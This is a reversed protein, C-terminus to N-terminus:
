TLCLEALMLHAELHMEPFEGLTIPVHSLSSIGDLYDQLSSHLLQYHGDKLIILDASEAALGDNDSLKCEDDLETMQPDLSLAELIENRSLPRM